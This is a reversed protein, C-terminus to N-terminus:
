KLRCTLMWYNELRVIRIDKVVDGMRKRLASDSPFNKLVEYREGNPLVRIQYTNGELDTRAISTSIGEVYVHDVLVLLCNKGLKERLKLLFKEQEQRLVHSWWFGAFCASFEADLHLDWADAVAFRLKEDPLGRSRALELCEPNIDTALVSEATEALQETWYGAGCALELVQHGRLAERVRQKMEALDDQREPLDYVGEYSKACKAYFDAMNTLLGHANRSELDSSKM